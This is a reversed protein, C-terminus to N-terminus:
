LFFIFIYNKNTVKINIQKIKFFLVFCFLSTFLKKSRRVHLHNDGFIMPEVLTDSCALGEKILPQDLGSKVVTVVKPHLFVSAWFFM